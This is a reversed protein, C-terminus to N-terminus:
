EKPILDSFKGRLEGQLVKLRQLAPDSSIMEADIPHSKEWMRYSRMKEDAQVKLKAQAYKYAALRRQAGYRKTGTMSLMAAEMEAAKDLSERYKKQAATAAEYHPNKKHLNLKLEEEREEIKGTVTFYEGLGKVVEPDITDPTGSYGAIKRCDLLYPGDWQGEDNKIKAVLLTAAKSPRTGDYTFLTGAPLKGLNKGKLSYYPAKVKLYGWGSKPGMFVVKKITEVKEEPVEIQEKATVEPFLDKQKRRRKTNLPTLRMGGSGTSRGTGVSIGMSGMGSGMEARRRQGRSVPRFTRAYGFGELVSGALIVSFLYIIQGKM